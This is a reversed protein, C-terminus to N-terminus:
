LWHVRIITKVNKKKSEIFVLVFKNHHQFARCKSNNRTENLWDISQMCTPPFNNYNM